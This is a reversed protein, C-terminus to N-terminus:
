AVHDRDNNTTDPDNDHWMVGLRLRMAYCLSDKPVIIKDHLLFGRSSGYYECTM